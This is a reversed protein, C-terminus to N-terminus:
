GVANTVVEVGHARLIAVVDDALDRTPLRIARPAQRGPAYYRSWSAASRISGRQWAPANLEIVLASGTLCAREMEGWAIWWTGGRLVRVGAASVRVALLSRYVFIVGILMMGLGPLFGLVSRWSIQEILLCVGKALWIAAFILGVVGLTLSRVYRVRMVGRPGSDPRKSDRRHSGLEFATILRVEKRRGRRWSQSLGNFSTVASNILGM